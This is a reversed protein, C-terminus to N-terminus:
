DGILRSEGLLNKIEPMIEIGQIKGLGGTACAREGFGGVSDVRVDQGRMLIPLPDASHHKLSCPTSHDGTVVLLTDEPLDFLLEAAKDAKEIFATKGEFNGDEGLSDTAKVHVYVFDYTHICELVKTFKARVDTNPLATTGPVDIVDMGVFRGLGKYLGGGAIACARLGYRSQFDPVAKYYGAGRALVYNAALLGQEIRRKNAESAKLIEHTRTLYKALVEATFKAEPSDDLPEPMRVKEGPAHPDPDKIAASLGEGRMILGVRHATGPLAIFKVGDIEIDKIEEVFERVDTIRGARRDIIIGTDDVTGLNARLAVDGHKLNFGLGAVEIPGRGPYFEAIDYGFITLHATDSGPVRGVGLPSMLGCIGEAALRDFNPTDARELPTLNDLEPIPRDGLGDFILLVARHLM